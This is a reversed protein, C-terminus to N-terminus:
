GRAATGHLRDIEALIAARDDEVTAMLHARLRAERAAVARAIAPRAGKCWGPHSGELVGDRAISRASAIGAVSRADRDVVVDARWACRLTSGVGGPTVAGLQRHAITVRSEYRADIPGRHHEITERHSYIMGATGTVAAAGILLAALTPSFM